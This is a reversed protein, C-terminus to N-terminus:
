FTNANCFGLYKLGGDRFTQIINIRLGEPSM